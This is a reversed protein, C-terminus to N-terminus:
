QFEIVNPEGAFSSFVATADEFYLGETNEDEASYMGKLEPHLELLFM